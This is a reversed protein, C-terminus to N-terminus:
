FRDFLQVVLTMEVNLSCLKTITIKTKNTEVSHSIFLLTGQDVGQAVGKNKITTKMFIRYRRLILSRINRTQLIICGSPISKRIYILILINDNITKM